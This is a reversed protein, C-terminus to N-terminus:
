GGPLTLIGIVDYESLDVKEPTFTQTHFCKIVKENDDDKEVDYFYAGVMDQYKDPDLIDKEEKEWSYKFKRTPNFALVIKYDKESVVQFVADGGMLDTIIIGVKERPENKNM